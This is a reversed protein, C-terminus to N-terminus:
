EDSLVEVLGDELKGALTRMLDFVASLQTDGVLELLSSPERTAIILSLGSLAHADRVLQDRADNDM